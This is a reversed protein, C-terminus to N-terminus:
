PADETEVDAGFASRVAQRAAHLRSYATQLPSGVISAIESMTM